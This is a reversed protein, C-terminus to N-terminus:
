VPKKTHLGPLHYWFGSCLPLYPWFPGWPLFQHAQGALWFCCCFSNKKRKDAPNISKAFFSHSEQTLHFFFPTTTKMRTQNKPKNQKSPRQKGFILHRNDGCSPDHQPAMELSYNGPTRAPPSWAHEARGWQQRPGALRGGQGQGWAGRTTQSGSSSEWPWM